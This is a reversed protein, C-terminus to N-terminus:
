SVERVDCLSLRWEDIMALLDCPHLPKALIEWDHDYHRVRTSLDANGSFLLIKCNPFRKSISKAVEIGNKDPMVVDSLVLDPEIEAAIEIAGEGSYAVYVILGNQKLIAAVTDAITSEDDVVLIKHVRTM